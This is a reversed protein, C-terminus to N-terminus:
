NDICPYPSYYPININDTSSWNKGMTTNEVPYKHEM